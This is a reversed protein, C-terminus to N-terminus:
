WLGDSGCFDEKAADYYDLGQFYATLSWKQPSFPRSSLQPKAAPKVLDVVPNEDDMIAECGATRSETGQSPNFGIKARSM